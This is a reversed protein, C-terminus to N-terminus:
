SPRLSAIPNARDIPPRAAEFPANLRDRRLRDVIRHTGDKPLRTFASWAAGALVGDELWETLWHAAHRPNGQKLGAGCQRLWKRNFREHAGVPKSIVIPIGLAAYFTLESPKTWLIDTRTLLANFARYYSLFDPQHLIDLATGVFRGLRARDIAHEFTAAVDRRTGAVLTVELRGRELLPRLSPLFDFALHAQAGAGGVAFTLHVPGPNKTDLVRDLSREVEGGLQERFIGTSDLRCLRSALRDRAIRHDLDGTLEVPLPFGTISIRDRRVGYSTLRRCVRQSPAFYHINSIEGDVPAWVRNIDADTAVCYVLPYGAQDALVAPAYFTTVLQKQTQKLYENLGAGLGTRGLTALARAGLSPGRAAPDESLPPIWTLRDMWKRPEGFLGSLRNPKSLLEQISRLLAWARAESQTALPSRDAHLLEVGFADSLTQAARLHGYGMEISVVCPEHPDDDEIATMRAGGNPIVGHM